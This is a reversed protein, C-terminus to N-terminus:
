YKILPDTFTIKVSSNYAKHLAINFRDFKLSENGIVCDWDKTEKRYLGNLFSAQKYTIMTIYDKREPTVTVGKQAKQLFSKLLDKTTM